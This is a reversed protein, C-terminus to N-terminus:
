NGVSEDLSEISNTDNFGLLKKELDNYDYTRQEFNNFNDQKINKKPEQFANPKVMSIILAVFNDSQKNKFHNYVRQIVTFDGKSSKLIKLAELDTINNHENMIAKVRKVGFAEDESIEEKPALLNRVMKTASIEKQVQNPKIYFKIGTIKRGTKIEELEFYIDTKENIEKMAVNIVKQKLNAYKPYEKKGIDLAIRLEEINLTREGIKEYQKLMEYIRFSYTSKFQMINRLQYKTYWDLSLYFLKMEPNIKLKLVGNKYKAIEVFHYKDFDKNEINKVKIIRAMLMDTLNDIDRYFRSDSTNLVTILDKSKFEYEKFDVDDKKILSALLRVLKQEMVTLTYSAEILKNSQYIWNESVNSLENAM